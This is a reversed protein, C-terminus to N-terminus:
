GHVPEYSYYHTIERHSNECRDRTYTVSIVTNHHGESQYIQLM